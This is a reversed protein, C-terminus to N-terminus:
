KMGGSKVNSSSRKFRRPRFVAHAEKEIAALKRFSEGAAVLDGGAWASETEALASLSQDCFEDWRKVEGRYVPRYSKKLDQYTTSMARLDAAIGANYPRSKLARTLSGKLSGLDAMLSRVSPGAWGLSAFFVAGVLLGLVKPKWAPGAISERNFNKKMAPTYM